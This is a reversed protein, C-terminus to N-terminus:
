YVYSTIESYEKLKGKENYVESRIIGFGSLYWTRYKKRLYPIGIDGPRGFIIIQEVVQTKVDRGIFDHREENLVIRNKVERSWKHILMENDMNPLFGTIILRSNPISDGEKLYNRYSLGEDFVNIRSANTKSRLEYNVIDEISLKLTGAGKCIIKNKTTFLEKGRKNEKSVDITWVTQFVDKDVSEIKYKLVNQLKGRKNYVSIEWTTGVRLYDTSDQCVQSNSDYNFFLILFCVVIKNM